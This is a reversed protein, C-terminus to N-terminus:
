SETNPMDETVNRDLQIFERNIADQELDMKYDPLARLLDNCTMILQEFHQRYQRMQQQISLAEDQTAHINDIVNLAVKKLPSISQCFSSIVTDLEIAVNSTELCTKIASPDDDISSMPLMAFLSNIFSGVQEKSWKIQNQQALTYMAQNAQKFALHWPKLENLILQQCLSIHKHHSYELEHFDKSMQSLELRKNELEARTLGGPSSEPKVTEGSLLYDVYLKQLYVQYDYAQQYIIGTLVSIMPLHVLKNFFSEPTNLTNVIDQETLKIHYYCFLRGVTIISYSSPTPKPGHAQEAM